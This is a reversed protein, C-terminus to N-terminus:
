NQKNSQALNYKKGILAVGAGIAMLICGAWIWNAFPKIYIRVSWSNQNIQESMSIYVDEFVGSSIAAETMQSNQAAYIRKEPELILAKQADNKFATFNGRSAIYNAGNVTTINNFSFTYSGVAIKEGIKLVTDKNIEYGKIMTVGIIFVAVGIHAIMMGQYSRPLALISSITNKASQRTQLYIHYFATSLIWFSMFLGLTVMPKWQGLLFTISVAMAISTILCINLKKLVPILLSHKWGTFITIGILIIAPAMIPVFITDFYPPGVSVKGLGLADLFLPYLTGLMVSGAATMFIMNNSLLFTERSILEFSEGKAISAARMAFLVFGSGIVLSLLILIYIGRKPDSAFAHVSTLVGSRVLFTGMLCLAFALIALLVTWVKFANRKETVSLSHILATGVLWPMFSANEVADWFWWGGWGLEYYAWKSGFAIGLTLFLWALLTWQQTWKAWEKNLEGSILASIAFAFAVSFGVYGMYLVPPHFVMGPDQLLPNLDRGNIAAPILREFPNSTFLIFSLFGISISGMTGVLRARFMRPLQKSFISVAVTWISLITAWLLISGEHGGWIAALKFQIPLSANSNEAVYLVSFDNMYFSFALSLFAIASFIFQTRSASLGIDMLLESKVYAGWFSAGAQVITIILALSLALNGIEPTM